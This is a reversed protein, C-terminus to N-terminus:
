SDGKSIHALIRRLPLVPALFIIFRRGWYWIL